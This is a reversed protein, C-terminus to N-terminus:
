LKLWPQMPLDFNQKKEEPLFSFNFNQPAITLAFAQIQVNPRLGQKSIPICELLLLHSSLGQFLYDRLSLTSPQPGLLNDEKSWVFILRVLMRTVQTIKWSVGVILISKLCTRFPYPYLFIKPFLQWWRMLHVAAVKRVANIHLLGRFLPRLWQQKCLALSFAQYSVYKLAPNSSSCSYSLSSKSFEIYHSLGEMLVPDSFCHLLISLASSYCLISSDKLFLLKIILSDGRVYMGDM